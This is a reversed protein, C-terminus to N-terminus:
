WGFNRKAIIRRRHTLLIEKVLLDKETLIKDKKDECFKKYYDQPYNFFYYGIIEEVNAHSYIEEYSVIMPNNEKYSKYIKKYYNITYM